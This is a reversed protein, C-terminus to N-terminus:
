CPPVPLHKDLRWAYGAVKPDIETLHRALLSAYLKSISNGGFEIEDFLADMPKSRSVWRRRVYKWEDQKRPVRKRPRPLEDENLRVREM